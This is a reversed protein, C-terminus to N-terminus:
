FAIELLYGWKTGRTGADQSNFEASVLIVGQEDLVQIVKSLLESVVDANNTEQNAVVLLLMTGTRPEDNQSGEWSLSPLFGIVGPFQYTSPNDYRGVPIGADNLIEKIRKFDDLPKYM